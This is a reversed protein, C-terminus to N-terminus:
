SGREGRPTPSKVRCCSGMAKCGPLAEKGKGARGLNGPAGPSSSSSLPEGGVWGLAWYGDGTMGTPITPPVSPLATNPNLIGPTGRTGTPLTEATGELRPPCHLDQPRSLCSPPSRAAGWAQCAAGPSLPVMTM